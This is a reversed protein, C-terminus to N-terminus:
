RSVPAREKSAPPPALWVMTVTGVLAGGLLMGYTVYEAAAPSGPLIVDGEPRALVGFVIMVLLWTLFPALRAPASAVLQDALRPLVANSALALVVAVPVVVSGAYLPVLLAELFAALAACGCILAVGAWDIWGTSRM